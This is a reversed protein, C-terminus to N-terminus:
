HHGSRNAAYAENIGNVDVLSVLSADTERSKWRRTIERGAARSDGSPPPLKDYFVSGNLVTLM